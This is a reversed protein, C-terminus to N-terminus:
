PITFTLTNSASSDLQIWYARGPELTTFDQRGTPTWVTWYNSWDFTYVKLIHNGNATNLDSLSIPTNFPNGLLNFKGPTVSVTFPSSVPTGTLTVDEDQTVKIWYGKGPEFTTPTTWYNSWDFSYAKDLNPIQSPNVSFPFSVFNFKNGSLHLTLTIPNARQNVLKNVKDWINSYYEDDIPFGWTRFQERLDVGTAASFAAVFVTAQKTDSDIAFPFLENRPLFLSFFRFLSDYGYKTCIVDIMDDLVSPTANDYHAGNKLYNDLDPTTGFHWVTSEINDVINNPINFLSAREKIMKAVYMGLATAFGEAYVFTSHPSGGFLFQNIRVGEGTFDHGIEHFFVGWQPWGNGEAVIMCSNDYPKDVDTGLRIPNGSLGCPVTGDSGHGPDNVLFLMGGEFPVVGTAESELEYAIDTIRVVDYNEFIKQYDFGQIPQRPIYFTIHKGSLPDLTIGLDDNTVRIVAANTALIGDAWASIYPTEDFTTPPSIATVLGTESVTAVQPNSSYFEVRNPTVNNGYADFAKLELTGTPNSSLSLLLIPPLLEVSGIAVEAPCTTLIGDIEATVWCRGFKGASATVTGDDTTSLMSPYDIFFKASSVDTSNGNAYKITVSLNGSTIGDSLRLFSPNILIESALDPSTLTTLVQCTAYSDAVDNAYNDFASVEWNFKTANGIQNRKVIISVTDNYVFVPCQGGGPNQDIPDVWGQWHSDYFAVRINYESGVFVHRQGTNPNSDTDIMWLYAIVDKGPNLPITSKLKMNFQLTDLNIQRIEAYVIDLYSYSDSVDNANDNVYSIVTSFLPPNQQYNEEPLSEKPVTEEAKVVNGRLVGQYLSLLMSITLLVVILKKM